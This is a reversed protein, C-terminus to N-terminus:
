ESERVAAMCEEIMPDLRGDMFLVHLPFKISLRREVLEVLSVAMLSKGGLSFFDEEGFEYSLPLDLVSRWASTVVEVVGKGDM